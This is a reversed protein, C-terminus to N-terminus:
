RARGPVRISSCRRPASSPTCGWRPSCGPSCRPSRHRLPPIATPFGRFCRSCRRKSELVVLLLLGFALRVGDPLEAMRVALQAMNVTGTAAYILALSTLFLASAVLSIVVYTMGSRIQERGGGLTLLVYSATLMMEFAVFLNFLDGTLFAAM